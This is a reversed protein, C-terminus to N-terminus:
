RRASVIITEDTALSNDVVIAPPPAPQPRTERAVRAQLSGAALNFTKFLTGFEDKRAESIRRDLDGSGLDDLARRLTKLPRGIYHGFAFALGAVALIAALALAAMLWLTSSLVHAIGARDVGLYIRGIAVKQFIIPTDFLFVNRDEIDATSVVVGSSSAVSAQQPAHYPKGILAAVTSAQVVGAHDTVVLYDLSNRARADEVFVRLPLWNQDLVPVASHVAVFKALSAGSDIVQDRLVGAEVVYIIAMSAVFLVALAASAMAALRYRMPVYKDQADNERRAEIADIERELAEILQSGTSFRQEPRKNLLKAVVRQLGVPVDPALDAISPPNEQLIQLMLFALNNKDFAKRGTLLEYLVAGLSFLDSRGDVHKSAVQEPSMYRPTGLLAGTLTRQLDEANEVRAVGFDTLKVTAGGDLILINEPKLDRHVIGRRHAYDLASALQIAIALVQELPLRVGTELHAALTRENIYEMAIYPVGDCEGVDYITVINPHSIGGASQAERHFRELYEADLGIEPKLMKVAVTRGIQPDRARYVFAMSGEGVLEEVQYRGIKRVPQQIDSM